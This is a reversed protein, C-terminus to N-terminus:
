YFCINKNDKLLTHPLNTSLALTARWSVSQSVLSSPRRPSYLSRLSLGYTHDNSFIFLLPPFRTCPRHAQERRGLPAGNSEVTGVHRTEKHLLVFNTLRYYAKRILFFFFFPMSTPCSYPGPAGREKHRNILLAYYSRGHGEQLVQSNSRM